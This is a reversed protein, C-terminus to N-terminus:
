KRTWIIYWVPM